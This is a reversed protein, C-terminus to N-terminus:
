TSEAAKMLDERCEILSSEIPTYTSKKFLVTGLSQSLKKLIRVRWVSLFSIMLYLLFNLLLPELILTSLLPVDSGTTHDGSFGMSMGKSSCAECKALKQRQQLKPDLLFV